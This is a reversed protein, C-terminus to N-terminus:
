QSITIARNLDALIHHTIDLCKNDLSLRPKIIRLYMYMCLIDKGIQLEVLQSQSM